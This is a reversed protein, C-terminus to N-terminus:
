DATEGDSQSDAGSTDDASEPGEHNQAVVAFASDLEVDVQDGNPLTVEVEYAAGDDGTATATVKGSGVADLAAASAQTLVSGTLPQDGSEGSDGGQAGAIALTSGGLVIAAAIAGTTIALARKRM